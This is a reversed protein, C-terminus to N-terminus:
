RATTERRGKQTQEMGGLKNGGLIKRIDEDTYGKRMLAETIKPLKSCDEMGEPMDAGDFDSGLGVHDAGVLKVAHDIHDIIREWSVHPPKGEAVAKQQMETMKKEM